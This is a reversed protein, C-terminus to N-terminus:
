SQDLNQLQIKFMRYSKFAIVNTLASLRTDTTGKAINTVPLGFTIIKIIWKHFIQWEFTKGVVEGVLIDLLVAHSVNM